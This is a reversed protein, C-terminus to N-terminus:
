LDEPKKIDSTVMLSTVYTNFLGAIMVIDQNAVVANVIAPGSIQCFDMEGAIMATTATSGGSISMLNVKLGYKAFIDKEFAYWTVIQTGSEGSYCVNINQLESQSNPQNTVEPQNAQNSPNQTSQQQTCSTIFVSITTISILILQALKM